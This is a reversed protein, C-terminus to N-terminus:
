SDALERVQGKGEDLERIADRLREANRPSSLLHLTEEIENWDQLSVM